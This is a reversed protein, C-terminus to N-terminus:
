QQLDTLLIGEGAKISKIAKKGNIKYLFKPEAGKKQNGPRLIDFNVGEVLIDGKSIDKMAQISRTAFKRLELEEKLIMKECNGKANDAQRIAIVMKELEDPTLSFSHDPGVLSRDMTFHKEIITAGMGVAVLPGIIPDLSHDSLGVSVNFKKKLERIVSINLTELPAPYRATCQLLALPGGKNEKWLNVLFEIEEISSAGTSVIVPKKTKALFELLRIHNNEYSAVKHIKVFPDVEKADAVSFPSSMLMINNKECIKALKPLMEYPMSLEDFIENINKSHIENALYKVNGAKQVYVTNAKFTQFKVADAGSKSATEILKTAREIDEDYSGAKWNSGAEAIIYTHNGKHFPCQTIEM